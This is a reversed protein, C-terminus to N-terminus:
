DTKPGASGFRYALLNEGNKSWAEVVPQIIRWGALVEEATAFLTHDGKVADVLVREYADPHGHNDFTKEYSFDMVVTEIAQAFGPKKVQLGLEIGEEPQIRFTLINFEGNEDARFRLTIETRKSKLAKGTTLRVPVGKWRRNKIYVLISAYTETISKLNNVQQKYGTYQGRVAREIVKNPPVPLVNKLLAEKQKHIPDSELLPPLEMAVLGLLQLLHSQILDRLAGTQEYFNVRNEIGLEETASISISEVTTRDWIPIFIPNAFRFMLINQVTEKALYHDIRFVQQENFYQATEEILQRASVLDYGFPKEVLLRTSAVGHQCSANLGHEGLFRVIPGYVQPPISLYYLRNMCVGHKDELGDLLKRLDDYDSPSTVDMHHMHLSEGMKRVAEPDCVQDVENVCLEVRELLQEKTVHRRTVGVIVTRPHLLGDKLLHYLAPLLKRGALDGTIGFIVIIAPELAPTKKVQRM